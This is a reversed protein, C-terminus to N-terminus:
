SMIYLKESRIIDLVDKDVMGRLADDNVGGQQLLERVKTSSLSGIENTWINPLVHIKDRYIHFNPRSQITTMFEELLLSSSSSPSTSTTISTNTNERSAVIISANSFFDELVRNMETDNGYYKVDFFRIITDYGMIFYLDLSNELGHQDNDDSITGHGHNHDQGYQHYYNLLVNKKDVFLSATTIGLAPYIDKKRFSMHSAMLLRQFVSADTSKAIKDINKISYLLLLSPSVYQHPSQSHLLQSIFEMSKEALLAHAKTPPNFSSDLIILPLKKPPTVNSPFPWKTNHNQNQKQNLILFVLQHPIHVSESNSAKEILEKVQKSNM